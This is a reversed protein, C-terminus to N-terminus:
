VPYRKQYSRLAFWGLVIVVFILFSVELRGVALAAIQVVFLVVVAALVIVALRKRRAINERRTAADMRTSKAM